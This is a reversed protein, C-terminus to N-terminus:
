YFMLKGIIDDIARGEPPLSGDAELGHKLMEPVLLDRLHEREEDTLRRRKLTEAIRWEDGSAALARRIIALEDKTLRRSAEAETMPGLMGEATSAGQINNPSSHSSSPVRRATSTPINRSISRFAQLAEQGRRGLLRKWLSPKKHRQLADDERSRQGAIRDMDHQSLDPPPAAGVFRSMDQRRLDPYEPTTGREGSVGRVIRRGDGLTM